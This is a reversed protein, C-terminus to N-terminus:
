KKFLNEFARRAEGSSRRKGGAVKKPTFFDCFNAKERDPVWEAQPERCQNHAAPDHNDCNLCCHLDAGCGPCEDTRYIRRKVEIETGCNHCIM